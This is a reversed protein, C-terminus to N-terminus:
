RNADMVQQNDIRAFFIHGAAMEYEGCSSQGARRYLELWCKMQRRGSRQQGMATLDPKGGTRRKRQRKCAISAVTILAVVTTTVSCKSHGTKSSTKVANRANLWARM